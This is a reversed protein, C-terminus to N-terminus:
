VGTATGRTRLSRSVNALVLSASGSSSRSLPVSVAVATETSGTFVATVTVVIGAVLDAVRSWGNAPQWATARLVDSRAVGRRTSIPPSGRSPRREAFIVEASPWINRETLDESGIGGPLRGEVRYDIHKGAASEQGETGM